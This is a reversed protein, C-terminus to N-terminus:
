IELQEASQIQPHLYHNLYEEVNYDQKEVTVVTWGVSDNVSDIIFTAHAEESKGNYVKIHKMSHIEVEPIKIVNKVINFFLRSDLLAQKRCKKLVGRSVFTVPECVEEYGETLERLLDQVTKASSSM